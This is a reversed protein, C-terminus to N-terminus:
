EDLTVNHYCRTWLGDEQWGRVRPSMLWIKTNFYVPAVPAARLLQQEAALLANDRGSPNSMTLARAYAQDFETNKWHPYNESANSVFDGLLQAPDAVDPIATIFAIDYDGSALSSLHVRAERIAISFDIGLEQRWMQQAAELVPIQSPSWATLEMHPFAKGSVGAAALLTRAADPDHTHDNASATASVGAAANSGRLAPPLLRGAPQQGGRLVRDVILQRDLALSLARRVREDSLPPRQTNFSFYRTEIMPARHLEAPREHAYVDVKSSPVAMTADIQGARYARDESDGSDFRVFHIEALRVNAAGHWRPNKKVVIRQDPRWEALLFPGNGVFNDPRTWNRGHKEVVRMPVPLWPGSAVYSPFRPTPQELTVVFTYADPARFGVASFDTLEGTVYARANKVAYFVNAKPAATSPTLVRRYAALFHSATVPESDSWRANRRLHFTYTLGDPSVDFRAAAGAQPEGRPGPILLGESLARLIAFEDVLTAVAPDLDGPENRQSLRLIQAPSTASSITPAGSGSERKACGTLLAPLLFLVRLL